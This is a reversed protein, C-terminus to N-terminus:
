IREAPIADVAIGLALVLFYDGWVLEDADHHPEAPDLCGGSLAGAAPHTEERLYASVLSDVLAVAREVHGLKFLTVAVIAAASSDPPGSPDAWRVPVPMRDPWRRLRSEAILGYAPDLCDADALALLVWAQGRTWGAPPRDLPRWWDADYQWAGPVPDNASTLGVLTDLHRRAADNRNAWTLLPVTGAAGDVRAVVPRKPDRFATGWPIVGADPDEAAALATAADRAPGIDVGPVGLRDAVVLGYWFILGRTVTDAEAWPTLRASWRGATAAHDARGTLHARLWLLGTWFGGTWSGRATTTWRGDPAAHLPFRDGVQEETETVRRLCNELARARDVTM